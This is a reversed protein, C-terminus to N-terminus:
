NQGLVARGHTRNTITRFILVHGEAKGETCGWDVSQVQVQSYRNVRLYM